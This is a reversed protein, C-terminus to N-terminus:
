QNSRWVVVNGILVQLIGDDNLYLRSNVVANPVIEIDSIRKEFNDNGSAVLRGIQLQKETPDLTVFAPANFPESNFGKAYSVQNSSIVGNGNSDFDGNYIVFNGDAQIIALSKRNFSLLRNMNVDDSKLYVGANISDPIANIELNVFVDETFSTWLFIDENFLSLNGSDDLVAKTAGEIATQWRVFEGNATYRSLQLGNISNLRLISPNDSFRAFKVNEPMLIGNGDADFNGTYIVFNGDEQLIALATRNKSLLRNQIFNNSILEEGVFLTDVINNQTSVISASDSLSQQLDLSAQVREFSGSIQRQLRALEEQLQVKDSTLNVLDENVSSTNATLVPPLFEKFDTDIVTNFNLTTPKITNLAITYRSSIVEAKNLDLVLQGKDNRTYSKSLDSGSKDPVIEGTFVKDNDFENLSYTTTVM